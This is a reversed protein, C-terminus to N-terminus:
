VRKFWQEVERKEFTKIVPRGHPCHSFLGTDQMNALLELIEEPALQNGAKVAAKCAMSSLLSDIGAAVVGPLEGTPCSRLGELTDHLLEVTDVQSVLAPVSKVVWTADGFYEVNFGLLAVDESRSEMIEAQGVTLEVSVPFLLSQRPVNRQLFNERLEEYIVREHAAHQDIVVM